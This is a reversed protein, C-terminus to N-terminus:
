GAANALLRDLHAKSRQAAERPDGDYSDLEVILWGDYGAERLAGIVGARDVDGEGLPLFRLPDPHVDKLHVHRLRNSYRRILAAPDGGGAVLHATDPCFDIRTLSM